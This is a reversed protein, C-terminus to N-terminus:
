IIIWTESKGNFSKKLEVGNGDERVRRCAEAVLHRPISALAFQVDQVRTGVRQSDVSYAWEPKFHPARGVEVNRTIYPM